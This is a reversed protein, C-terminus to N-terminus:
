KALTLKTSDVELPWRGKFGSQIALDPRMKQLQRVGKETVRTQWLYVRKLSKIKTLHALGRDSIPTGVLNLSEL